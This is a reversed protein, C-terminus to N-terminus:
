NWVGRKNNPKSIKELGEVNIQLGVNILSILTGSLKFSRIFSDWFALIKKDQELIPSDLERLENIM